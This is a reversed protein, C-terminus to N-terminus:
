RQVTFRTQELKRMRRRGEDTLIGCFFMTVIGHVADELSFSEQMLIAPNVLNNVAGVYALVFIKRNVEPRIMGERVGQAFLNNFAETIRAERFAEIREWLGPAQRRVDRAFIRSVRGLQSGVFIMFHDIKDICSRDGAFILHISRRAEAMMRHAVLEVLAEKSSVIKYLTKKSMGLEGAIEDMTVAAIGVAFFRERAFAIVRLRASKTDMM